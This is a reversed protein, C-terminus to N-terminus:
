EAIIVVDISIPSSRAVRQDAVQVTFRNEGKVLQVGIQKGTGITNGRQKWTYIVDSDERNVSPAKLILSPNAPNWDVTKTEPTETFNLRPLVQVSFEQSVLETGDLVYSLTM